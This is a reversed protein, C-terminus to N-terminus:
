KYRRGDFRYVVGANALNVQMMKGLHDAKDTAIYRYGLYLSFTEAFHYQIGAMGQYSFVSNSPSYSAITDPALSSSQAKVWGYGIGLGLYPQLSQAIISPFDYYANAMGLALTTSGGVNTQQVNNAKFRELSGHIYTFEIEYRMPNSKYGLSLGGDNGGQYKAENRHVGLHNLNLNNPIYAYGGFASSYWGDIPTAAHSISATLTLAAFSLAKM